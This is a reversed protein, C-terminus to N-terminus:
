CGVWDGLGLEEFRRRIHDMRRRVTHWSCGLRRAIENPSEGALLGHCVAQEPEPLSAIADRVDIVRENDDVVCFEKPAEDESDPDPLVDALPVTRARERADDRHVSVLQNNILACVATSEKAGEPRAADYRFDLLECALRQLLENWRYRPFGMAAIRSRALAVTACPLVGDYRNLRTEANSV